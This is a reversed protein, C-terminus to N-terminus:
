RAQIYTEALEIVFTTCLNLDLLEWSGGGAATVHVDYNCLGPQADPFHIGRTGGPEIDSSLVQGGWTDAEHPAIWVADVVASSTNEFDFDRVDQARVTAAGLVSGMLLVSGVLSALTTWFM